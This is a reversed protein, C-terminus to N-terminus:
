AALEETCDACMPPPEIEADRVHAGVGKLVAYLDDALAKCARHRELGTMAELDPLADANAMLADLMLQTVEREPVTVTNKVIFQWNDFARFMLKMRRDVLNGKEDNEGDYDAWAKEYTAYASLYDREALDEASFDSRNLVAKRGM